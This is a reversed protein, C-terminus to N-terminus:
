YLTQGPLAADDQLLQNLGVQDFLIQGIRLSSWGEKISYTFVPKDESLLCEIYYTGIDSFSVQERLCDKLQHLHTSIFFHSQSFQMLGKVTALSIALADEANTGRFLEDFVAFCRKGTRAEEVVTKLNQIETMFHSYGAGLDDQLNISIFVVDFFPMRCQEAPVALGLHGLYVCLGVSKLLTSKGSMNPGTILVVNQRIDLSNQVPNKLLPHYFGELQVGETSFEPFVFKQKVIGRAISLYAEFLFLAQWFGAAEGNRIKKQLLQVLKAIEGVSFNRQRAIAQNKTVEFDAFWQQLMTLQAKFEEPFRDLDLQSFYCHYLKSFFIFLLALMGRERHRKKRRFLLYSKMSSGAWHEGREEVHRIYGYVEDFELRAYAFPQLLVSHGIMAKLIDQRFVIEKLDGPPTTLLQFLVDRAYENCVSDFLPIIENKFQLDQINKM